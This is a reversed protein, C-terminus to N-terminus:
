NNENCEIAIAESLSGLTDVSVDAIYIRFNNATEIYLDKDARAFIRLVKLTNGGYTIYPSEKFEYEANENLHRSFYSTYGIRCKTETEWHNRLAKRCQEITVM